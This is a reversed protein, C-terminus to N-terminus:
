AEYFIVVDKMRFTLKWYLDTQKRKEMGYLIYKIGYPTTHFDSLQTHVIAYKNM